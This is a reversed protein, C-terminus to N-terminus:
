SGVVPHTRVWNLVEDAHRDPPFVPYFVHEIRPGHLLMTLRKYLRQPQGSGAGPLVETTFTPLSLADAVQLQPDSLLRYPLHLRAVLDQQYQARDSSLALVKEVGAAHLQGLNDRFSCAEQSCGRAGPIEDWGRPVDVGPEGTLPYVFLVWRGDCVGDLRVQSGDTATLVLGPLTRGPLHRAAGDDVPAPLGEPLLAPRPLMGDDERSAATAPLTRFGRRAAQGMRERLRDRAQSLRDILGDLQDIKRQYAAISEACDDVADHGARLCEVFPEAEQTTLGLAMLQRLEAAARVDEDSYIRYGNARRGPRVLGLAEYYRLAKVSVGAAAAAQGARM